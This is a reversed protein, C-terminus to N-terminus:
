MKQYALTALKRKQCKLFKAFILYAGNSLAVKSTYFMAQSNEINDHMFDPDLIKCMYNFTRSCPTDGWTGDMIIMGVCDEDMDGFNNPQGAKWNALSLATRDSWVWTGEQDLDNLGLWIVYTHTVSHEAM